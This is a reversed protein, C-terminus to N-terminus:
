VCDLSVVFSMRFPVVSYFRRITFAVHGVARCEFSVVGVDQYDARAAGTQEGRKVGLARRRILLHRDGDFAQKAFAAARAHHLTPIINRQALTVRNLAM